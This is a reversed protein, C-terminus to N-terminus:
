KESPAGLYYKQGEFSPSVNERLLEQYGEGGPYNTYSGSLQDEGGGFSGQLEALDPKSTPAAPLLGSHPADGLLHYPLPPKSKPGIIDSIEPEVVTQTFPINRESEDPKMIKQTIANQIVNALGGGGASKKMDDVDNRSLIQSVMRGRDEDFVPKTRIKGSDDTSIVFGGDDMYRPEFVDVMGGYNYPQPPMMPPQQPMQPPMMGQPPMGMPPQGGMMPPQMPPQGMGQPPMPPQPPVTNKSLGELYGNFRARKLPDTENSLSQQGSPSAQPAAGKQQPMGGFFSNQNSM